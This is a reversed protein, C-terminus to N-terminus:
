RFSEGLCATGPKWPSGPPENTPRDPCVRTSEPDPSPPNARSVDPMSLQFVRITSPTASDRCDPTPQFPRTTVVNGGPFQLSVQAAKARDGCWNDWVLQVALVRGQTLDVPGDDRFPPLQTVDLREGDVRLTVALDAPSVSCRTGSSDQTLSMVLTRTEKGATGAGLSAVTLGACSEGAAVITTPRHRGPLQSVLVGVVTAAALVTLLTSTRRRRVRARDVRRLMHDTLAPSPSDWGVTRLTVRLDQELTTMPM